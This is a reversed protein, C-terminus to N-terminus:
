TIAMLRLFTIPTSRACRVLISSTSSVTIQSTNTRKTSSTVTLSRKPLRSSKNATARCVPNTWTSLSFLMLFFARKKCPWPRPALKPFDPYFLVKRRKKYPRFKNRSSISSLRMRSSHFSRSIAKSRRASNYSRTSRNRSCIELRFPPSNITIPWKCPLSASRSVPPASM